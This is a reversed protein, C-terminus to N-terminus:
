DVWVNNVADFRQVKVGGLPTLVVSYDRSGNTIYVGGNGSGIDGINCVPDFAVPVGDPRFVVWSAQTIGDPRNFSSGTLPNGAGADMIAPVGGSDVSGWNLGQVVPVSWVREGLADDFCCNGAGPAGDNAVVVPVFNGQEDVLPNGCADNGGATGVFVLHNNGTAIAQSRAYHFADAVNRTATRLRQDNQFQVWAPVAMAALVGLIALVVAVEVLTM